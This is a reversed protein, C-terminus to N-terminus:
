AAVEAAAAAAADYVDRHVRALHRRQQLRDHRRAPAVERGLADELAAALSAPDPGLSGTAYTSVRQQEHWLGADSAVVATGLDHCLEVMGSHTGHAYPLVLADLRRLADLLQDDDWPEHVLLDVVDSAELRDLVPPPLRHLGSRHVSVQLRAGRVRSVSDCLPDLVRLDVNARVDKLHLGIRPSGTRPPRPDDLADLPAVHPHPVVVAARGWRRRVERAAGPTLTLVEHAGQVLVQLRAAHADQDLLHPNDLDHVTLVLPRHVEALAEVLAALQEPSRHEFGFHVHLVDFADAHERVWAPELSVHPWWRGPPAGPLAPDPLRLVLPTTPDDLHRVYAHGAPVSCV